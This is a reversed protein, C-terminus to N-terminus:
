GKVRGLVKIVASFDENSLGMAEAIRYLQLSLSALPIPVGLRSAEKSVLDLDKRMHKTAFQVSFDGKIMKPVKLESTPSRASSLKVLVDTIVDGSLGMAEGLNVVEALAAVYSGLLANNVLKAYLGYGNPGVHVVSSAFRSVVERAKEFAEDEGGVLVVAQRREVLVSTGIVPADVMLGGRGKVLKALEISTSPSITSMEIVLSGGKVGNLVGGDGLMVAKVADDDSVISLVVDVDRALEAPNGYVKVKFEEAFARAKSPTRNYVGRLLGDERLVKAIRWGMTGLGIVGVTVM